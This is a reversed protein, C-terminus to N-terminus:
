QTFKVRCCFFVTKLGYCCVCSPFVCLFFCVVVSDRGRSYPVQRWSCMCVGVGCVFLDMGRSLSLPFFFVPLVPLDGAAITLFFSFTFSCCVIKKFLAGHKFNHQARARRKNRKFQRIRSLPSISLFIAEFALANSNEFHDSIVCVGVSVCVFRATKTLHRRKPEGRASKKLTPATAAAATQQFFTLNKKEPTCRLSM